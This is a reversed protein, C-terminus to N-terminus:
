FVLDSESYLFFLIEVTEFTAPLGSNRPGTILVIAKMIYQFLGMWDKLCVLHCQIINM